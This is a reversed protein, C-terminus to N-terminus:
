CADNQVKGPKSSLGLTSAVSGNKQFNKKPWTSLYWLFDFIRAPRGGDHWM